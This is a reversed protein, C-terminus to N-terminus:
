QLYFLETLPSLVPTGDTNSETIDSMYKWWRQMLESESLRRLVEADTVKLVGILTHTPEDFFISYDSVGTDKLLQSIGPWIVEHRRKYEDAFGDLLKMKFAIREM